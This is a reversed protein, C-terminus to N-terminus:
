QLKDIYNRTAVNPLAVFVGNSLSQRFSEMVVGFEAERLDTRSAETSSGSPAPTCAVGPPEPLVSTAYKERVPLV